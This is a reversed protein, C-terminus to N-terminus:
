RLPPQLLPPEPQAVLLLMSPLSTTSHWSWHLAPQQVHPLLLQQQMCLQQQPLPLPLGPAGHLVQQQLQRAVLLLGRLMVLKHANDRQRAAAGTAAAAAAAAKRAAALEEAHRM